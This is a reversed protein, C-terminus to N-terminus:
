FLFKFYVPRFFIIYMSCDRFPTKTVPEDGESKDQLYSKPNPFPIPQTPYPNSPTFFEYLGIRARRSGHGM